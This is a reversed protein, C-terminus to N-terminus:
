SIVFTFLGELNICMIFKDIRTLNNIHFRLIHMICIYLVHVTTKLNFLGGIRFPIVFLCYVRQSIKYVIDKM